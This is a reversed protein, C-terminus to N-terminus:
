PYILTGTWQQGGGLDGYNVGDIANQGTFPVAERSWNGGDTTAWVTFHVHPFEAYGEGGPFSVTGIFDGQEIRAGDTWRRDVTVHFLAVAYGNGMDIVIGGRRVNPGGSQAASRHM